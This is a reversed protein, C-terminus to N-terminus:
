ASRKGSPTMGPQAYSPSFPSPQGNKVMELQMSPTISSIAFCRDCRIVYANLLRTPNISNDRGCHPCAFTLKSM